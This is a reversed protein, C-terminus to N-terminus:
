QQLESAYGMANLDVAGSGELVRVADAASRFPSNRAMERVWAPADPGALNRQERPDEALDFAYAWDLETGDDKAILKRTGVMFGRLRGSEFRVMREPDGAAQFPRGALGAPWGEQPLGLATLVTPYFDVGSVVSSADVGAPVGPCALWMPVRVNPEFLTTGHRFHGDEGLHEGHDATVLVITDEELIGRRELDTFLDRLGEDLERSQEWYAEEVWRVRQELGASGDRLRAGLEDLRAHFRVTDTRVSDFDPDALNPPFAAALDERTVYPAHPDIYNVFLFVPEDAAPDLRDLARGVQATTDAAKVKEWKDSGVWKLVNKLTGRLGERAMRDGAIREAGGVQGQKLFQGAVCRLLSGKGLRQCAVYLDGNVVLSDDYVEFGQNFRFNASIRVNSTVGVTRYGQERLVEALTREEAPLAIEGLPLTGCEAPYKGTFLAAHGPPTINSGSYGREFRRGRQAFEEFWPMLTQGEWEGGVGESRMTDLVVLVVNPRQAAQSVALPQASAAHIEAQGAADRLHFGLGLALYAAAAVAVARRGSPLRLRSALRAGLATFLILALLTIALGWVGRYVQRQGLADTLFPLQAALAWALGAALPAADATPRGGVRQSTPVLPRWLPWTLRAGLALGLGVLLHLFVALASGQPLAGLVMFGDVLPLPLFGLLFLAAFRSATM